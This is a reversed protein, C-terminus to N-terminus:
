QYLGEMITIVNNKVTLLAPYSSIGLKKLAADDVIIAVPYNIGMEKKFSQVGQLSQFDICYGYAIKIDKVTKLFERGTEDTGFFVMTTDPYPMNSKLARVTKKCSRSVPLKTKHSIQPTEIQQAIYDLPNFKSFEKQLFEENDKRLVSLNVQLTQGQTGPGTVEARCVSCFFVIFFLIHM